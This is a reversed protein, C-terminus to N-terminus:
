KKGLGEKVWTYKGQRYVLQVRKTEKEIWSIESKTKYEERKVYAHGTFMIKANKRDFFIEALKKNVLGFSWFTGNQFKPITKNNTM